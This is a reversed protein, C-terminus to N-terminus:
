FYNEPVIYPFTVVHKGDTNSPDFGMSEATQPLLQRLGESKFSDLDEGYPGSYTNILPASEIYCAKSAVAKM